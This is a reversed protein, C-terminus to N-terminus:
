LFIQYFLYYTYNLLLIISFIIGSGTKTKKKSGFGLPNHDFLIPNNIKTLYLNLLVLTAVLNCVFQTIM